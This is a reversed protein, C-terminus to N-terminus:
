IAAVAVVVLLLLFNIGHLPGLISVLARQKTLSSTVLAILLVLDALAIPRVVRLRKQVRELQQQSTM